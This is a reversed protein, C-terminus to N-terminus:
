TGTRLRQGLSRNAILQEAGLYILVPIVALAVGALTTATSAPATTGPTLALVALGVLVGNRWLLAASLHTPADGCGCDIESRGRALNIAMATAYIALLSAALILGIAPQFILGGITAIEAAAILTAIAGAAAPPTLEYAQLVAAFRARQTVKHHAAIAFVGVLLWCITVQILAM